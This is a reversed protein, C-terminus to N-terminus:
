CHFSRFAQRRRPSANSETSHHYDNSGVKSERRRGAHFIVVAAAVEGLLAEGKWGGRGRIGPTKRFREEKVSVGREEMELDSM